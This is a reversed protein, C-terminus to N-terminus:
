LYPSNAKEGYKDRKVSIGNAMIKNSRKWDYITYKGNQYDVFDITGAIKHEWDYVTWETRYPELKVNNAFVKFLQFTEDEIFDIDQFYNVIKKHMATELDRSEKGKQEWMEIVEQVAVGMAGAKRKAHFQMDFQPFCNSVFATVTELCVGSVMNVHDSERFHINRDLYHRNRQNFRFKEKRAEEKQREIEREEDREEQRRSEEERYTRRAAQLRNEIGGKSDLCWEEVLDVEKAFLRVDTRLYDKDTKKIFLNIEDRVDMELSEKEAKSMYWWIVFSCFGYKMIFEVENDSLEVEDGLTYQGFVDRTRRLKYTRKDNFIYCSCFNYLEDFYCSGCKELNQKKYEDINERYSRYDYM